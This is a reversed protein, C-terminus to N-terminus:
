AALKAALNDNAAVLALKGGKRRAYEPSQGAATGVDAYNKASLAADLTQRTAEDLDDLAALWEARDRGATYFDVWGIASSKGSPKPKMGIFQDSYMETGSAIGPPCVTVPPMVPTNAIAQAIFARSEAPTLDIDGRVDGKKIFTRAVPPPDLLSGGADRRLLTLTLNTNSISTQEPAQGGGKPGGNKESVGLIAGTPMACLYTALKGDVTKDMRERLKGNSFKLSGIEKVPEGEYEKDPAPAYWEWDGRMARLIERTSPRVEIDLEQHYLREPHDEDGDEYVEVIGSPTVTWNSQLPEYPHDPEDRYRVLAPVRDAILRNDNAAREPKAVRRPKRKAFHVWDDASPGIVRHDAPPQYM